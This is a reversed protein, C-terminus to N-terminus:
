GILSNRDRDIVLVVATYGLVHDMTAGLDHCRNSCGVSRSELSM